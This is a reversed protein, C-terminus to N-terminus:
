LLFYERTRFLEFSLTRFCESGRPWCTSICSDLFYIVHSFIACRVFNLIVLRVNFCCHDVHVLSWCHWDCITSHLIRRLKIISRHCPGLTCLALLIDSSISEAWYFWVIHQGYLRRLIEYLFNNRSTVLSYLTGDNVRPLLRATHFSVVLVSM